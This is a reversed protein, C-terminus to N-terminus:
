PTKKEFVGKRMKKHKRFCYALIEKEILVDALGTHEEEFDENCSIFRYLIEATLRPRNGTWYNREEAWQRYTPSNVLVDEAMKMTDWIEIEKPFFYRWKSKTIYRETTNLAKLDFYANHACVTTINYKEMDRRFIRRLNEWSVIKREKNKIQGEYMPLKKAYYATRMLDRERAYVDYNIYSRKEYVKGRKDTVVWGLDYVLPDDLSNATETDLV